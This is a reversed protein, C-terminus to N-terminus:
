FFRRQVHRVGPIYVSTNPLQGAGRSRAWGRKSAIGVVSLRLLSLVNATTEKPRGRVGGAKLPSLAM